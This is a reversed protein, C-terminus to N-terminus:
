SRIFNYEINLTKEQEHNVNRIPNFVMGTDSQIRPYPLINNYNNGKYYLCLKHVIAKSGLEKTNM